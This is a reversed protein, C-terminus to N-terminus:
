KKIPLSDSFILISGRVFCNYRDPKLCMVSDVSCGIYPKIDYTVCELQIHARLLIHLDMPEVRFTMNM